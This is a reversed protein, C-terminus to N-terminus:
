TSRTNALIKLLRSRTLYVVICAVAVSILTEGIVTMSIAFGLAFGIFGILAWKYGNEGHKKGTQFFIVVTAIAALKILILM